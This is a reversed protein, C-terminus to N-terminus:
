HAFDDHSLLEQMERILSDDTRSGRIRDLPFHRRNFYHLLRRMDRVTLEPRAFPFLLPDLDELSRGAVLDPRTKHDVTGPIITYILMLVTCDLSYVSLIDRLISRRTQDPQGILLVCVLQDKRFGANRLLDIASKLQAFGAPRRTRKAWEEDTTEISLHVDHFNSRHMVDAIHEDVLNTQVGEPAKFTLKLGTAALKEMMPIFHDRAHVLLNSEWFEFRGIGFRDHFHRVEAVVDDPDRYSMRRGELQSVACYTCANPCGVSTKLISASPLSQGALELDPWMAALEPMEGEWVEDAGSKRALEPCLTPYVGGLHVMAEPHTEKCLEVTEHTARWSYTFISSIYFHDVQGLTKLRAHLDDKLMGIHYIPETLGEQAFNGMPAVRVIREPELQEDVMQPTEQYASNEPHFADLMTVRHGQNKLYRGLRLLALPFNTTYDLSWIRIGEAV